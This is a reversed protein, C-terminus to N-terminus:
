GSRTFGLLTGRILRSGPIRFYRRGRGGEDAAVIREYRVAQALGVLLCGGTVRLGADWGAADTGPLGTEPLLIFVGALAVTIV